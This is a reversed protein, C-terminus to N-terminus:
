AARWFAEPNVKDYREIFKTTQENISAWWAANLSTHPRYVLRYIGKMSLNVIHAPALAMIDPADRHDMIELRGDPLARRAADTCARALEAEAEISSESFIPHVPEGEPADFLMPVVEVLKFTMLWALRSFFDLAPNAGADREAQTLREPARYHPKAPGIWNVSGGSEDFGWVVYQAYQGLQKRSYSRRLVKPDIGGNDQLNQAGYLDILLRLTMVDGHQRIRVFPHEAGVVGDVLANPLWILDGEKDLRYTPRRPNDGTQEALDADELADIAGNANDRGIKLRAQIAKSSWKTTVNDAGSGRAMVLFALAPYMGLACADHFSDEGVAFFGQHSSKDGM